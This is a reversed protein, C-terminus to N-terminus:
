RKGDKNEKKEPMKKISVWEFDRLAYGAPRWNANGSGRLVSHGRAVGKVGPWAYDWMLAGAYGGDKAKRLFAKVAREQLDDNDLDSEPTQGNIEFNFEGILVPRDLKLESVPPLFGDNRYEHFDYFDLNLGTFLGKKLNECSHWGSGCSVLRNRDVEHIARTNDKIFSRMQEWPCGDTRWNGTNGAVEQEPENMIDFAFVAKNGKLMSVFPKVANEIYKRRAAQDTVIDKFGGQRCIAGFNHALTLYLCLDNAAALKVTKEFNTSLKEDLRSVYGNEFVLGELDEFVFIRVVNLRMRKMDAFYKSVDNENFDIAWDPHLPDAGFDHRYAGNLWALNIGKVPQKSDGVKLYAAVSPAKAKSQALLPNFDSCLVIIGLLGAWLSTRYESKTRCRGCFWFPKMM